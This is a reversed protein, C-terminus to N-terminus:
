CGGGSKAEDEGWLVPEPPDQPEEKSVRHARVAKMQVLAEWAEKDVAGTSKYFDTLVAIASAVSM